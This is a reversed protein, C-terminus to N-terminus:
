LYLSSILDNSKIIWRIWKNFNMWQVHTHTHKSYGLCQVLGWPYLWSFISSTGVRVSNMAQHSLCLLFRNYFYHTREMLGWMRLTSTHSDFNEDWGPWNFDSAWWPFSRQESFPAWLHIFCSCLSPHSLSKFLSKGENSVSVDMVTSSLM